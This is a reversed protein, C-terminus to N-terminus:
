EDLPTHPKAVARELEAVSIMYGYVARYYNLEAQSLFTRADLVDTSTAIQEKYQLTTIRWNEKAQVVSEQATKINKESVLLNEFVTKVELQISKEAGEYKKYLANKEFSYKSVDYKTKGGKFLALNAQLTVSSSEVDGFDNDSAMVDQGTQEYRGVLAIQPYYASKVARIAQDTQKIALKVMELEPRNEIAEHLLDSLQYSAPSLMFIDDLAVSRNVDYNLLINLTSGANKLVAGSREYEQVANALAVKAKLLDNYPIMGQNYFQEADSEHSKLNQVTEEAVQQVKEVLLFQFYTKKVDRVLNLILTEKQISSMEMNLKKIEYQSLLGFGTFLPQSLTLNWTYVDESGLPLNGVPLSISPAENLRTYTYGFSAKPLFDAGASKKEAYAASLKDSAEQISRNNVLAIKLAEELSLVTPIAMDSWPASSHNESSTEGPALRNSTECIAEVLSVFTKIEGLKYLAKSCNNKGFLGFAENVLIDITNKLQKEEDHLDSLKQRIDKIEVDESVPKSSVIIFDYQSQWQLPLLSFSQGTKSAMEVAQNKLAPKYFIAKEVLDSRYAYDVTSVVYGHQAFVRAMKRASDLDKDRSLIQIVPIKTTEEKKLRSKPECLDKTRSLVAKSSEFKHRALDYEGNVFLAHAEALYFVLNEKAQRIKDNESSRIKQTEHLDKEMGLTESPDSKDSIGTVVILDFTSPWSLPKVASKELNLDSALTEASKGFSKAFFITTSSFDSRLAFDVRDVAYGLTKLYNAAKEASKLDANGSLVKIRLDKKESAFSFPSAVFLIMLASLVKISTKM